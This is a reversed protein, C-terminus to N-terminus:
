SLFLSAYGGQREVSSITSMPETIYSCLINELTYNYLYAQQEVRDGQYDINHGHCFSTGTLSTEELM